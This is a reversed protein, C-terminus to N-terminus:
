DGWRLGREKAPGNEIGGIRVQNGKDWVFIEFGPYYVHKDSPYHGPFVNLFDDARVAQDIARELSRHETIEAETYDVPMFSGDEMRRFGNHQQISTREERSVTITRVSGKRSVALAVPQASSSVMRSAADKANRVPTGDVSILQDGIHIGASAAPSLPLV